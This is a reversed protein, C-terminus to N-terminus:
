GHAPHHDGPDDAALVLAAAGDVLLQRLVQVRAAVAAEGLIQLLQAHRDLEVLGVAPGCIRRM